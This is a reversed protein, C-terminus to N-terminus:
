HFYLTVQIFGFIDAMNRLMAVNCESNVTVGGGGEEFFYHEVIGEKSVGRWM